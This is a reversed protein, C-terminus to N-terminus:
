ALDAPATRTRNEELWAQFMLIDWICADWRRTGDLHEGWRRRIPTPRFYGEDRLRREDLLSEAWDKLPGRLWSEMPVGFGRKPRDVLSRPVHRYLVQRLIWKGETRSIKVSLPLRWALEVVRHDLFPARTELSVGMAARDVKVLIDDPLYTLSDIAMMRSELEPSHPWAQYNSMTTQPESSDLVIAVPATWHSVLRFYLQEPEQFELLESLKDAGDYLRTKGWRPPVAAIAKRYVLSLSNPVPVRYRWLSRARYYRPYGGFLEDGGDGSLAVTVHERTMASVMSTPIQSSDSFPEDYLLPLRPIVDLADQPSVYLETHDAGLHHAVEKAHGAENYKPENFGITFTRVPRPSCEQMLAVVTSSDIGGSLFAGLPVDAELQSGVAQRLVEHLAEVAEGADGEFPHQRGAAIVERLSWYEEPEPAAGVQLSEKGFGMTVFTGPVLKRIGQYISWPGPIYNHRLYLTLAERDVTGDFAPHCVLSKLESAFMFVDNQWGYYLPKEGIRDRALWLEREQRDWLAFAFMGVASRLATKLGLREIAALLSETDSDGIWRVASGTPGDLRHRLEQHNYIEGNFAIVYRGSHSCMPQHGAASLDIVALRRSALAVGARDDLWVGSDDPGRHAIADAMKSATLEGQSAPFGGRQVFGALGCM